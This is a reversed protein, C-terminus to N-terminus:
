GSANSPSCPTCRRMHMSISWGMSPLTLFIPKGTFISPVGCCTRRWGGNSPSCLSSIMASILARTRAFSAADHIFQDLKGDMWRPDSFYNNITGLAVIGHGQLHIVGHQPQDFLASFISRHTADKEPASASLR